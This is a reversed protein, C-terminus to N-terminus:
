DGETVALDITVSEKTRIHVPSGGVVTYPPAIAYDYGVAYLYYDGKYCKISYNGATDATVKDDYASVDNGPFEKANFKIYVVANAIAKAHHKVTGSVTSKGGLQNKKCGFAVLAILSVLLIKRMNGTKM